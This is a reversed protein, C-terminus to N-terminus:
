IESVEFKFIEFTISLGRRRDSRERTSEREGLVGLEFGQTEFGQFFCVESVGFGLFVEFVQAWEAATVM